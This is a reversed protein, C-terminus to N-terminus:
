KADSPPRGQAALMLEYLQEIKEHSMREIAGVDLEGSQWKDQEVALLYEQWQSLFAVVNYANDLDRHLRFESKVYADGMVQLEPQLKKHARLIRRYLVLPPLLKGTKQSIGHACRALSPAYWGRRSVASLM